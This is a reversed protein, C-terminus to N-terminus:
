SYTVTCRRGRHFFVYFLLVILCVNSFMTSLAFFVLCVFFFMVCLMVCFMFCVGFLGLFCCFSFVCIM